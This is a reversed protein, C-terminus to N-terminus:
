TFIEMLASFASSLFEAASESVGLSGPIISLDVFCKLGSPLTDFQPAEPTM